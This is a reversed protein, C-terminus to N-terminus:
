SEVNRVLEAWLLRTAYFLFRTIKDTGNVGGTALDKIKANLRRGVEGPVSLSQGGKELIRVCWMYLHARIMESGLFAKSLKDGSQRLKYALGMYAQFSKLSRNRKQWRDNKDLEWEVFPKGEILWQDLPYIQTLMLPLVKAGMSFSRLTEVYPAFEPLDVIRDIEKSLETSRSEIAILQRAHERTYTSIEVGLGQVVSDAYLRDYHNSTQANALWGLLPSFGKVGPQIRKQSIEPFESSLRQRIQNIAQNRLKDLQERELIRDRLDSIAGDNFKLWRKNGHSDIFRDDFWTAALCLADEDDRKNQFGYSKRQAALDSHGVWCVEVNNRKAWLAWIESYHVGTPEMILHTPKLSELYNFGAKDPKIRRFNKRNVSFYRKINEPFECLLVAVANNRGVDLGVIRNM